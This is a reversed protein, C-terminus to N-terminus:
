QPVTRVTALLAPLGIRLGREDIRTMAALPTSRTEQGTSPQVHVGGGGIGFTAPEQVPWKLVHPVAVVILAESVCDPVVM